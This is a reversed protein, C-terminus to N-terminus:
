LRIGVVLIDDIQPEHGMWELLTKEMLKRQEAMPYAQIDLMLKKFNKSMFKKGESGGFQDLYGDSFLYLTYNDNPLETASFDMKKESIGIPMQDARLQFLIHTANYFDGRGTELEEGRAVTAKEEATLERVYYLPNYAGSFQFSHNESDIRVMSLDMGDKTSEGISKGSQKLSTIVHERLSDLILNTDTVGSKIIIEDLFSIGLMSMFAGPVGHGTCDAAVFFVKGDRQGMWYFDGSVIDRPRFLIFHDLQADELVKETPLLARQIRSAYEISDTLEEKQKRIEATREQIVGELRINELKLRRTYLKIIFFIILGSIIIYGLYAVFTAYVPRLIVFSYSGAESEEGFINLAKVKFTYNGYPLNTFDKYFVRDWSSWTRDFGELQYSFLTKDEGIFYPYTWRFEINNYRYPIDPISEKDQLTSIRIKGNEYTHYFNGDFILSDNDITVGRILTQGPEGAEYAVQKDYHYLENSNSFWVGEGPVSYIVDTSFAPLRFFPKSVQVYGTDEPVLRILSWGRISNEISIWFEGDYDKHITQITNQGKMLFPNLVSDRYFRNTQYNYHYIGDTTGVYVVGDLCTVQNRDPSPLGNETGLMTYSARSDDVAVKGIGGIKTAFFLNRASDIGLTRVEDPVKTLKLDEYYSGNEYKLYVVSNEDGIYFRNVYVPDQYICFPRYKSEQNDKKGQIIEDLQVTNNNRDIEFLGGDSAAILVERQDKKFTILSWVETMDGVRRFRVGSKSEVTCFLGIKTGVYLRNNFRTIVHILGQLGGAKENFVRFPSNLETKTIGISLASFLPSNISSQKQIYSYYVSNDQLGDNKTIIELLEGKASLLLLGGSLTSVLFKDPSPKLIQSIGNEVIYDNIFDSTFSFDVSGSRTDFISLGTVDSGIILRGEDFKEIAFINEKTYCESGKVIGFTDAKLEAIGNVFTTSYFHGDIVFSFLTNEPVNFAYVTDKQIDYRFIYKMTCFYVNGDLYYSKWVDYFLHFTTDTRPLLSRYHLTGKTDPALYGFEAVAGVYVTGENDLTLSRITSNNSINITKWESGDYELIGKDDNGVYLIGREDQVMTWNQESGRTVEPPYNSILPFGFRNPQAWAAVMLIFFLNISIIIRKM